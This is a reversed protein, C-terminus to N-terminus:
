RTVSVMASDTGIVVGAADFARAEIVFSRTGGVWGGPTPWVCTYVGGPAARSDIRKLRGDVYFGVKAVPVSVVATLKTSRTTRPINLGDAPVTLTIVGPPPPLTGGVLGIDLGDTGANQYPSTGALTYDSPPNQFQIEALTQAYLTDAPYDEPPFFQVGANNVIVNRRVDAGPFFADLVPQGNGIGSGAIGYVGLGLINNRLVFNTTPAGEALLIARDAFVVNHEITVDDGGFASYFWGSGGWRAESADDFVNNRILFRKSPQSPFLYDQGLIVLGGGVHRVINNTFTVDEVTSWPATGSQNRVTFVIATGNQAHGWNYEFTNGEVLVRRANKLEFLNKITWPTGQYTPDEIRWSLPKAFHNGTITIDSPVLGVTVPDAGGFMLNEGSGEVYSNAILFPGPGDWGAIAQADAGQEKFDSLYSDIVAQHAGNMAIGRRSGAGWDGHLYCRDVIIHSANGLLMLNFLFTGPTPRIELGVFRYHHAGLDVAIVSGGPAQIKPMLLADSPTVRTGPAPLTASSRVVIWGTGTKAPLTFAGTYVAGQALLITDGLQAANLAAQLDGGVPVALTVGTQTPYTTDVTSTPLAPMAPASTALVLVTLMAVLVPSIM